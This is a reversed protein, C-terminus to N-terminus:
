KKGKKNNKANTQKKVPENILKPKRGTPKRGVNKTNVQITIENKVEDKNVVKVNEEEERVNEELEKMLEETKNEKNDNNDNNDKNDNNNSNDSNESNESNNHINLITYELDSMKQNNIVPRKFINNSTFSVNDDSESDSDFTNHKVFECIKTTLNVGSINHNVYININEVLLVFRVKYNRLNMNQIEKLEKNIKSNELIRINMYEENRVIKSYELNDDKFDIRMDMFEESELYEELIKNCRKDLREMFEIEEESLRIRIMNNEVDLNVIECLESEIYMKHGENKLKLYVGVNKNIDEFEVSKEIRLNSFDNGSKISINM